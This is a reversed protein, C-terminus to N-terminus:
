RLWDSTGYRSAVLEQALALIPSDPATVVEVEEAIRAAWAQWFEAGLRLRISGQHLLGHRCRRQGAGAIKEGERMLDHLAPAQFCLAGEKREAEGALSGGGLKEALSQHILQYSELPRTRSWAQGAPVILSYTTDSDHWVVGGGTWRRVVPWAPLAEKLAQWNHSYGISISPQDWQYVRLVPVGTTELWAQDVAMNMAAARPLADLCLILSPFWPTHM